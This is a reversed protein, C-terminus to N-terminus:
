QAITMNRDASICQHGRLYARPPAANTSALLQQQLKEQPSVQWLQMRAMRRVLTSVLLM